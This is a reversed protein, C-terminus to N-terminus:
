FSPVDRPPSPLPPLLLTIEGGRQALLNAGWCRGRQTKISLISHYLSLKKKKFACFYDTSLWSYGDYQDLCDNM